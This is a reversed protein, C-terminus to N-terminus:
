RCCASVGGFVWPMTKSYSCGSCSCLAPDFLGDDFCHSSPFTVGVLRVNPDCFIVKCFYGTGDSAMWSFCGILCLTGMLNLIWVSLYGIIIICGHMCASTNRYDHWIAFWLLIYQCVYERAFVSIPFSNRRQIPSSWKCTTSYSWCCPLTTKVGILECSM